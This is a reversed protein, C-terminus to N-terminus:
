TGPALSVLWWATGARRLHAATGTPAEAALLGVTLRLVALLPGLHTFAVATGTPPLTDLWGQVRAHFAAGSEGGPPGDTGCPDGLATTWRAPAAGYRAELEAWTHGAMVGFEAERLEGTVQVNGCGALAATQLCRRAPSVYVAGAPPLRLAAAQREGDRSLPADEGPRPYRREANPVTAAHRVM